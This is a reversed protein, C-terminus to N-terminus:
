HVFDDLVLPKGNLTCISFLWSSILIQMDRREIYSATARFVCKSRNDKGYIVIKLIWPFQIRKLQVSAISDRKLFISHLSCMIMIGDEEVLIKVVYSLYIRLCLFVMIFIILLEVVLPISYQHSALVFLVIFGIAFM